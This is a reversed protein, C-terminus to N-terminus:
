TFSAFLLLYFTGIAVRTGSGGDPLHGQILERFAQSYINDGDQLYQNSDDLFDGFFPECQDLYLYSGPRQGKTLRAAIAIDLGISTTSRHFDEDQVSSHNSFAYTIANYLSIAACANSDGQSFDFDVRQISGAALCLKFQKNYAQRRKKWKSALSEPRPNNCM